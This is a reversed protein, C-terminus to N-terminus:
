LYERDDRRGESYEEWYEENQDVEPDVEPQQALKLENLMTELAYNVQSIANLGPVRGAGFLLELNLDITQRTVEPTAEAIKRWGLNELASLKNLIQDNLEAAAAEYLRPTRNM